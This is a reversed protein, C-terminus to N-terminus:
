LLDNARQFHNRRKEKREMWKLRFLLFFDGFFYIIIRLVVTLSSNGRREAEFDDKMWYPWDEESDSFEVEQYPPPPTKPTNSVIRSRNLNLARSSTSRTGAFISMSRKMRTFISYSCFFFLDASIPFVFGSIARKLVPSKRTESRNALRAPTILAADEEELIERMNDGEETEESSICLSSEDEQSKEVSSIEGESELSRSSSTLSSSM